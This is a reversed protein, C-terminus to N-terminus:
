NAQPYSLAPGQALPTYRSKTGNSAAVPPLAADASPESAGFDGRSAGSFPAFAGRSPASFHADEGRSTSAAGRSTATTPVPQLSAGDILGLLRIRGEADEGQYLLEYRYTQGQKGRHALLFELDVLRDLHVKLQSDGWGVAERAQRRTFAFDSQALSQRECEGQVWGQLLTLLKRTQPLLEDVAEASELIPM